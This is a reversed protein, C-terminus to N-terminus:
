ERNRKITASIKYRISASFDIQEKRRAYDARHDTEPVPSKWERVNKEYYELSTRILRLEGEDLDIIM